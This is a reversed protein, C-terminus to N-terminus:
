NIDLTFIVRTSNNPLKQSIKALFNPYFKFKVSKVGPQNILWNYAKNTNEGKLRETWYEYPPLVYSDATVRALITFTNPGGNLLNISHIKISPEFIAYENPLQKLLEQLIIKIFDSKKYAVNFLPKYIVVEDSQPKLTDTTLRRGALVGTSFITEKVDMDVVVRIDKTLPEIKPELVITVIPWIQWLLSILLITLLSLFVYLLYRSRRSLRPVVSTSLAM